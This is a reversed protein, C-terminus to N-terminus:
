LILSQSMIVEGNIFSNICYLRGIIIKEPELNKDSLYPLLQTQFRRFFDLIPMPMFNPNVHIRSHHVRICIYSLYSLFSDEYLINDYIVSAEQTSLSYISDLLAMETTVKLLTNDLVQEDYNFKISDEIGKVLVNLYRDLNALAIIASRISILM